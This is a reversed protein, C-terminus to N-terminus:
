HWVDRHWHRRTVDPDRLRGGSDAPSPAEWSAAKHSAARMGTAPHSPCTSPKFRPLAAGPGRANGRRGVWGWPVRGVGPKPWERSGGLGPRTQTAAGVVPMASRSAIDKAAHLGQLRMDSTTADNDIIRRIQGFTRFHSQHQGFVAVIEVGFFTCRQM